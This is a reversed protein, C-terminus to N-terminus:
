SNGCVQEKEHCYLCILGYMSKSQKLKEVIHPNELARFLENKFKM